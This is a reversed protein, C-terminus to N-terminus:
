AWMVYKSGQINEAVLIPLRIVKTKSLTTVHHAISDMIRSSAQLVEGYSVWDVACYDPYRSGTSPHFTGRGDVLCSETWESLNEMWEASLSRMLASVAWILHRTKAPFFYECSKTCRVALEGELDLEMSTVAELFKFDADKMSATMTLTSFSKLTGEAILDSVQLRTHILQSLSRCGTVL